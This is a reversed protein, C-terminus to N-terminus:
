TIKLMHKKFVCCITPMTNLKLAGLSGCGWRAKLCTLPLDLIHSILWHILAFSLKICYILFAIDLGWSNFGVQLRLHPKWPPERLDQLSYNDHFHPWLGGQRQTVNRWGYHHSQKETPWEYILLEDSPRGLEQSGRRTLPMTINRSELELSAFYLKM